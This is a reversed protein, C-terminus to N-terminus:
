TTALAEQGVARRTAGWVELRPVLHEECKGHGGRPGPIEGVLYGKLGKPFWAVFNDGRKDKQRTVRTAQRLESPLESPLETVPMMMVHWNGTGNVETTSVPVMDEALTGLTESATELLTQRVESLDPEFARAPEIDEDGPLAENVALTSPPFTDPLYTLVGPNSIGLEKVREATSGALEDPAWFLRHITDKIPALPVPLNRAVARDPPARSPADGLINQDGALYVREIGLPEMEICMKLLKKSVRRSPQMKTRFTNNRHDTFVFLKYSKCYKQAWMVGEYMGHLEREMPTWRQQTMDFSKSLVAIPRPTGHITAPQALVAAYGYDSADVFLMFPRGSEVYRAAAEFDPNVLPTHTAVSQKLQRTAEQAPKDELYAEWRAGKSRHKKLPATLSDFGPIFERLYNAFHYLSVVDSLTEEQPWAKLAAVKAPDPLRGAESMEFGILVVKPQCFFCKSLRWQVGHERGRTLLKEMAAVHDEFTASGTHFDDVFISTEELDGFAHDNFGQCIGPGQKPGMPLYKWRRLGSRTVITLIKQARESLEIQSFGWVMDMVTHYRKHAARRLVEDADAPVGPHDETERNPGEYDTVLRGLIDGVKDVIFAPSAWEGAEQPPVRYLQGSREFEQCRYELRAEDYESLRFPRRVSPRSGEKPVIDAKFNKIQPAPCGADWFRDAYQDLVRAAFAKWEEETGSKHGRPKECM